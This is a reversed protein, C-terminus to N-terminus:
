VADSAGGSDARLEVVGDYTPARELTASRGPRSPVPGNMSRFRRDHLRAVLTGM